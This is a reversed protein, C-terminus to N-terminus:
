MDMEAASRPAVPITEDGDIIAGTQKDFKVRLRENHGERAAQMTDNEWEREHPRSSLYARFWADRLRRFAIDADM